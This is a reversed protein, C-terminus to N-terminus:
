FSCKVEEKHIGTYDWSFWKGTCVNMTFSTSLTFTLSTLNQQYDYKEQVFINVDFFKMSFFAIERKREALLAIITLM